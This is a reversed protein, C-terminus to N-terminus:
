VSAGVVKFRNEIWADIDSEIFGIARVSIQVKPAFNGEKILAYITGRCLGTRYCVEALRLIRPRTTIPHEEKKSM